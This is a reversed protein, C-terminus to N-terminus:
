ARGRQGADLELDLRRGREELPAPAELGIMGLHALKTALHGGAQSRRQPEVDVHRQHGRARDRAGFALGNAHHFSRSPPHAILLLRSCVIISRIVLPVRSSDAPSIVGSYRSFRTWRM